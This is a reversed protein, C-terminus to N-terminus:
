SLVHLTSRVRGLNVASDYDCQARHLRGPPQVHDSGISNGFNNGYNARNTLNFAQAVLQINM